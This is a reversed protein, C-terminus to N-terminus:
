EFMNDGRRRRLHSRPRRGHRRRRRWLRAVVVPQHRPPIHEVLAAAHRVAHQPTVQAGEQHPRRQLAIGHRPEPVVRHQQVGHTQQLRQRRQQAKPKQRLLLFRFAKKSVPRGHALAEDLLIGKEDQEADERREVHGWFAPEEHPTRVELDGSDEKGELRQPAGKRLRGELPVVDVLRGRSVRTEEAEGLVDGAVEVEEPLM